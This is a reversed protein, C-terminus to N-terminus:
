SFEDRARSGGHSPDVLSEFDFKRFTESDAIEMVKNELAEANGLWAYLAGIVAGMSTGTVLDPTWGEHELVKIVGVHALGRAGGGGLALVMGRNLGLHERIWQIIM